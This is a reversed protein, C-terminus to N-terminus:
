CKFVIEFDIKFILVWVQQIHVSLLLLRILPKSQLRPQSSLAPATRINCKIRSLVPGRQAETMNLSDAEM